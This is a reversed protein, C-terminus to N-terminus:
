KKSRSMGGGCMVMTGKTKGRQAIGDARSSATGGKAMKKEGYKLRNMGARAAEVPVDVAMTKAASGLGKLGEKAASGYNGKKFEESAASGYKETAKEGEAVSEKAGPNYKEVYDMLSKGKLKGFTTDPEPMAKDYAKTSKRILEEESMDEIKKAM